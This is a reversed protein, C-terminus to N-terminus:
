FTINLINALLFTSFVRSSVFDFGEGMSEDAYQGIQTRKKNANVRENLAVILSNIEESRRGCNRRCVIKGEDDTEEDSMQM